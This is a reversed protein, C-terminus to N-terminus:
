KDRKLILLAYNKEARFESPRILTEIPPTKEDKAEVAPKPMPKPMPHCIMLDDGNLEYIGPIVTEGSKAKGKDKVSDSTGAILDIERPKKTPDLRHKLVEVDKGDLVFIVQDKTIRVRLKTLEEVSPSKGPSKLSVVKWTGQINKADDAKPTGTFAASFTLALVAMAALCRAYM